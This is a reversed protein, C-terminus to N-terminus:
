LKELQKLQKQYKIIQKNSLDISDEYNTITRNITQMKDLLYDPLIEIIKISNSVIEDTNMYYKSGKPVICKVNGVNKRYSHFGRHIEINKDYRNKRKGFTNISYLTNLNYEFGKHYSILKVKTQMIYLDVKKYCVIDKSAIKEIDKGTFCM